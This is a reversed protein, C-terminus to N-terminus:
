RGTESGSQQASLVEGDVAFTFRYHSFAPVGAAYKARVTGERFRADGERQELGLGVLDAGPDKVAHDLWRGVGKWDDHFVKDPSRQSLVRKSKGHVAYWNVIWLSGALVLAWFVVKSFLLLARM